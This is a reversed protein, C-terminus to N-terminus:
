AAQARQDVAIWAAAAQALTPSIAHGLGEELRKVTAFGASGLAAAAEVACGVPVVPDAAGHGIFVAPRHDIPAIPAALRGALVVARAPPRPGVAVALTMMAGQSFGALTLRDRALGTDALLADIMADLHPLAAAIRASRNDDTVGAISFWQRGVPAQDLPEPADLVFTAANPDATTLVEALGIMSAADSGVGHLVIILREPRKAMHGMRIM